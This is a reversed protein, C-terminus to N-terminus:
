ANSIIRNIIELLLERQEPTTLRAMNCYVAISLVKSNTKVISTIGDSILNIDDNPDENQMNLHTERKLQAEAENGIEV